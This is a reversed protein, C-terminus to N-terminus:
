ELIQDLWNLNEMKRETQFFLFYIFLYIIEFTGNMSISCEMAYGHLIFILGRPDRDAPLWRCTFLKLGRSNLIFEQM